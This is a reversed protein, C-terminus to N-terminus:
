APGPETGDAPAAGRARLYEQDFEYVYEDQPPYVGFQFARSRLGQQARECVAWDQRSVLDELEVIDSPDFGDRALTAPEFLIESVVKTRQPGAPWLVSTMVHDPLLDLMLNPFVTMGNYSRKEEENLDPLLPLSSQGTKSFTTVDDALRNGWSGDKEAMLGRRYIPIMKVLEPHVRPCHLCENYNEHIIKWNAAVEYVGRWGPRLREVHYREYGRWPGLQEELPRPKESLNVFVFGNWTEVGVGHLGYEARDFGEVDGVNPTGVLRGDLSYTWGHYPCVIASGLRGAGDCLRSGRHRCVNYFARLTGSEGRVILVSEGLVERVMYDRAGALEEERGACFWKRYFIREKELEFIEAAYYDQAPLTRHMRSAERKWELPM